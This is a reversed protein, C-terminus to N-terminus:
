RLLTVTGSRTLTQGGSTTAHIVFVYAGEACPTGDKTGDWAIPLASGRAIELGWRDYILWQVSVIGLTGVEWTDNLGDNNPSFANPIWLDVQTPRVIVRHTATDRCGEPTQLIVNVLYIGPVHYTYNFTPGASQTSGDGPQWLLTPNPLSPITNAQFAVPNGVEVTDASASLIVDAAPASFAWYPQNFDNVASVTWSNPFTGSTAGTPNWQTSTGSWQALPGRVPDSPDYICSLTAPDNGALRDIYHYYLPNIECLDPHRSLRPLGEQTPDVNALRVAYRHPVATSPTVYAPRYRLPTHGGVPFLYDAVQNTSRGLYGGQESSVFGNLRVIAAPAPNRIEAYTTQTRLETDGLDLLQDVYLPTQLVKPGTGQLILTDTRIPHLGRLVQVGGSLILTGPQVGVIFLQNPDDNQIDGTIYVTGSNDFTGGAQNLWGGECWLLGGPQLYLSVGTNTALPQALVWAVGLLGRAVLTALRMARLKNLPQSQGM